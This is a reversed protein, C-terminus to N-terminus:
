TERGMVKVREEESYNHAVGKLADILIPVSKESFDPANRLKDLDDAFETTIQKLHFSEFDTEDSKHSSMGYETTSQLVTESGNSTQPAADTKAVPEIAEAKSKKSKGQDSTLIRIWRM